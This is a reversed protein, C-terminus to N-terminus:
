LREFIVIAVVCSMTEIGWKWFGNRDYYIFGVDMSINLDSMHFKAKVKEEIVLKSHKEKTM